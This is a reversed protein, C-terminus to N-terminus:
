KAPSETKKSDMMFVYLNKCMELRKLYVKRVTADQTEIIKQLRDCRGILEKLEGLTLSMANTTKSCTEDFETKWPEEGRVAPAALCLLVFGTVVANIIGSLQMTAKM